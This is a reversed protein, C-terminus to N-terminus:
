GPALPQVGCTTIGIVVGCRQDLPTFLFGRHWGVVFQWGAILLPFLLTLCRRVTEKQVQAAPHM